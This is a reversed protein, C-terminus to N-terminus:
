LVYRHTRRGKIFTMTYIEWCHGAPKYGRGGEARIVLYSITNKNCISENYSKSVMCM